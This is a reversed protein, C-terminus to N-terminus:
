KQGRALAEIYKDFYPSIHGFETFPDYEKLEPCNLLAMAFVDAFLEIKDLIPINKQMGLSENMEDFKNPMIQADHTVAL